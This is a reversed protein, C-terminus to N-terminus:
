DDCSGFLIVTIRYANYVQSYLRNVIQYVITSKVRGGGSSVSVIGITIKLDGYIELM